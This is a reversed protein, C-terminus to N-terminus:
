GAVSPSAGTVIAEMRHIVEDIKPREEMSLKWCDELLAWLEDSFINGLSDFENRM